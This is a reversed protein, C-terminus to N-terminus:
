QRSPTPSHISLNAGTENEIFTRLIANKLDTRARRLLERTDDHMSYSAKLVEALFQTGSEGVTRTRMTRIRDLFHARDAESMNEQMIQALIAEALTCKELHHRAFFASNTRTLAM